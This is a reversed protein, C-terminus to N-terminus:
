NKMEEILSIVDRVPLDELDEEFLIRTNEGRPRTKDPNSAESFLVISPCGTVSIIHMPGTDNGVAVHAGRALEAIDDFSTKGCLNVRGDGYNTLEAILDEEAKSGIFIPTIKREFFYDALRGYSGEPWRKEPRHMSGGAVLLVYPKKLNFKSIDSKLFSVDPKPVNDIGAIHLQEAQREITHMKTRDPNLHPHSCWEIRGSWLPKKRGILRFYWDSRDSTQLDYVMDFKEARLSKIFGWWKKIEWPKPKEDVWIEDFYGTKNALEAYPKTTLLTIHDGEHARRIAAFPGTAMIFDGLAGHKIVLYKKM